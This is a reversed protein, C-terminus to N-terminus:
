LREGGRSVKCKINMKKTKIATRSFQNKSKHGAPKRYSM